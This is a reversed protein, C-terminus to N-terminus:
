ILWSRGRMGRWRGCTSRSETRPGCTPSASAGDVLMVAEREMLDPVGLTRLDRADDIRYLDVHVVRGGDYEHILTFTPSSVEEPAAVLLGLSTKPAARKAALGVAIHGIFM